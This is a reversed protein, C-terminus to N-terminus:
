DRRLAGILADSFGDGIEAAMEALSSRMYSREPVAVSPLNVRAAFMEKGGLAFALARGKAPVIQHPPITGGYEHIAAYKVDASAAISVAIKGTTETVTAVIARALAGSRSNLVDGALKERIRNELEAALATAKGALAEQVRELRSTLAVSAREDLAITLL